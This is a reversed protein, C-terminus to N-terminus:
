SRRPKQLAERVPLLPHNLLGRARTTDLSVDRPRDALGLDAREVAELKQLDAERSNARLVLEGFEFRSLRDPGAVHLLGSERGRYLEVLVRAANDVDLPTRFEDTFLRPSEGRDLSALLSDSAGLGRGGSEGFLLPLRVVLADPCAELLAREGEAKTRGYVGTSDAPDSETYGSERPPQGAFVLDTSTLLLRKRSRACARAVEAPLDVNLKRALEPDRECDGVRALAAVLIVCQPQLLQILTEATGAQALDGAVDRVKERPTRPRAGPKRSVSVVERSDTDLEALLRAGLFGSGGFVLVRSPERDASGPERVASM